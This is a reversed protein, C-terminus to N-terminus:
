FTLGKVLPEYTMFDTHHVVFAEATRKVLNGEGAHTAIIHCVADPVGCEQALGVGTFPHRLYQGRRSQVCQGDIKDYELLKGVDALIAGAILEDKDMPMADGMFEEIKEFSVEALHVVLRKHEMFTVKCGEVHLTFPIETLDKPSLPSREFALMWTELVQQRLDQDKIWVMEPWIELVEERTAM